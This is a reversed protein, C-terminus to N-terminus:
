ERRSEKCAECHSFFTTVNTELQKQLIESKAFCHSFFTISSINTSSEKVRDIPVKDNLPILSANLIALQEKLELIKGRKFHDANCYGQYSSSALNHCM